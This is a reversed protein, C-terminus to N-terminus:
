KRLLLVAALVVGGIILIPKLDDSILRRGSTFSDATPRPVTPVVAQAFQPGTGSKAAKFAFFQGSITTAANAIIAAIDAGSGSRTPANFGFGPSSVGPANLGFSGTMLSM